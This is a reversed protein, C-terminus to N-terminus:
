LSYGVLCDFGETIAQTRCGCDKVRVSVINILDSFELKQM